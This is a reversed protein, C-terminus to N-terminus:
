VGFAYVGGTSSVRDPDQLAALQLVAQCMEGRELGPGFGLFRRGAICKAPRKRNDRRNDRWFPERTLGGCPKVKCITM